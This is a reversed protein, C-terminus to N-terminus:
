RDNELQLAKPVQAHCRLGMRERRLAQELNSGGPLRPDAQERDGRRAVEHGIRRELKQDAVGVNRQAHQVEHGALRDREFQRRVVRHEDSGGM